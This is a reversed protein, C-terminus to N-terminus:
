QTVGQLTFYQPLTLTDIEDITTVGTDFLVAEHNMSASVNVTAGYLLMGFDLNIDGSRRGSVAGMDIGANHVDARKQTVFHNIMDFIFSTIDKNESWINLDISHQTHYRKLIGIISDASAMHTQIQSWGTDSIFISGAQRYGDMTAIDADTFVLAEYDDALVEADEGVNSDSITVSPFVNINQERGLVDQALLLAFPHVTGVRIRDFNEYIESYGITEFFDRVFQSLSEEPNESDLAYVFRQNATAARITARSTKYIQSM